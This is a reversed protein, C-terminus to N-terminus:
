LNSTKRPRYRYKPKKKEVKFLEHRKLYAVTGIFIAAAILLLSSVDTEIPVKRNVTFASESKAPDKQGEYGLDVTLMYEGDGFKSTGFTKLYEVQTEVPVTETEEYVIKGFADSITYKVTTNVQGPEGFNILTIKAVLEEGIEENTFEMRIDFLTTPEIRFYSKVVANGTIGPASEHFVFVTRSAGMFLTLAILLLLLKSRMKKDEDKPRYSYKRKKKRWRSYRM